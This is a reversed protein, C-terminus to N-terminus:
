GRWALTVRHGPEESRESPDIEGETPPQGARRTSRGARATVSPTRGERAPSRRAQGAFERELREAEGATFVYRTRYQHGVLLPHGAAKQARLWNRFQLGTVGLRRAIDNPTLVADSMAM